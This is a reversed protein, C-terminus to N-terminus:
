SEKATVQINVTGTSGSATYSVRLFKAQTSLVDIFAVDASGAASITASLPLTSWNTDSAGLNSSQVTFTGTPTGTWIIEFAVGQYQLIEVPVSNFSSTMSQNTVLAYNKVNKTTAM